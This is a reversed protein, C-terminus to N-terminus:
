SEDRLYLIGGSTELNDDFEIGHKKLCKSFVRGNASNIGSSSGNETVIMYPIGVVEEILFSASDIEIWLLDMKPYEFGNNTGIMSLRYRKGNLPVEDGIRRIIEKGGMFYSVKQALLAGIRVRRVESRWPMLRKNLIVDRFSVTSAV